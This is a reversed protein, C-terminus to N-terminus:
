KQGASDSCIFNYTVFHGNVSYEFHGQKVRPSDEINRNGTKLSEWSGQVFNVKISNQFTSFPRQKQDWRTPASARGGELCRECEIELVRPPRM